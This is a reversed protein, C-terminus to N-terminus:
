RWQFLTGCVTCLVEGSAGGEGGSSYLGVYQVYYREVLGVRVEVPISDWMCLVEGSAMGEGGSARGEGGSARGEGGSSYLGVYM